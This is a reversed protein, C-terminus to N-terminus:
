ATIATRTDTFTPGGPMMRLEDPLNQWHWDTTRMMMAGPAVATLIEGAIPRFDARFHIASKVVLIDQATPEIGVYRFMAQDALQAKASGVVVRVGGIRLCASAGLDM